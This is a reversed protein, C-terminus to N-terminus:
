LRKMWKRSRWLDFLGAGVVFSDAEVGVFSDVGVVLFSGAEVM